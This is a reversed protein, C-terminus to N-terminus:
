PATEEHIDPFTMQEEPDHMEPLCEDAAKCSFYPLSVAEFAAPGAMMAGFFRRSWVEKM